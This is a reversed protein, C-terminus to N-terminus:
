CFAPFDQPGVTLRFVSNMNGEDWLFWHFHESIQLNWTAQQAVPLLPNSIKNIGPLKNNGLAIPGMSINLVTM